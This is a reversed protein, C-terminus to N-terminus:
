KDRCLFYYFTVGPTHSIPGGRFRNSSIETSTPGAFAIIKHPVICNLDGNEPEAYHQYESLNFYPIEDDADTSNQSPITPSPNNLDFRIFGFDRAKEMAHIVNEVTIKGSQPGYGMGADCYPSLTSLEREFPHLADEATLGRCLVSWSCVLCISNSRSPNDM